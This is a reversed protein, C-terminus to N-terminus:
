LSIERGSKVRNNQFRNRGKKVMDDMNRQQSGPTLHYPNCCLPNDCSHRVVQGDQVKGFTLEFAVKHASLVTNGAWVQGYGDKRTSKTWPCCPGDKSMVRLNGHQPDKPVDVYTWFRNKFDEDNLYDFM